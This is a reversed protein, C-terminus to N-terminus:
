SQARLTFWGHQEQTFAGTPERCLPPRDHRHRPRALLPPPARVQHTAGLADCRGRTHGCRHCHPHCPRPSDPSISAERCEGPLHQSFRRWWTARPDCPCDARRLTQYWFSITFFRCFRWNGLAKLKYKLATASWAIIFINACADLKQIIFRQMLVCM